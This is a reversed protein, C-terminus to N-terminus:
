LSVSGLRATRGVPRGRQLRSAADTDCRYTAPSPSSTPVKNSDLSRQQALRVLKPPATTLTTIVPPAPNMPERSALYRSLAPSNSTAPPPGRGNDCSVSI